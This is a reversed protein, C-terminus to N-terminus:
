GEAGWGMVSGVLWFIQDNEIEVGGVIRDIPVQTAAVRYPHDPHLRLYLAELEPHDNWLATV